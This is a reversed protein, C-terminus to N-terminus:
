EVAEQYADTNRDADTLGKETLIEELYSEPSGGLIIDTGRGAMNTAITVGFPRGAQSIVGAEKEHLKANLVKHPIQAEKLHQSIEESKEVSVTGVLVPRGAEHLERIEEIVARLKAEENRYILDTFDKRIMDRNTPITM